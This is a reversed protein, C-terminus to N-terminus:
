GIGCAGTAVDVAKLEVPKAEVVLDGRVEAAAPVRAPRELAEAARLM